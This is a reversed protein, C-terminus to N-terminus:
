HNAALPWDFLENYRALWCALQPHHSNVQLTLLTTFDQWIDLDTGIRESTLCHVPVGNHYCADLHRSYSNRGYHFGIAAPLALLMANTGHQRNDPVLSVAAGSQRHSHIVADIDQPSVLPLDGHLIMAQRIGSATVERVAAAVGSNLCRDEDLSLVRAGHQEALRSAQPCRTIVAIGAVSRCAALLGLLDTLLAAMLSQRAYDPLAHALRSKSSHLDKVPILVQM